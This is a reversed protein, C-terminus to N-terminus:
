KALIFRFLLIVVYNPLSNLSNQSIVVFLSYRSILYLSTCLRQCSVDLISKVVDLEVQIFYSADRLCNNLTYNLVEIFFIQM